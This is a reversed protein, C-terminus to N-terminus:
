VVSKRDAYNGHWAVVDFVSHDMDAVFLKGQYKHILQFPKDLDEYAAVPYLFDRPNALGNAGIPGLDPIIFHGHFIEAIYGRSTEKTTLKVAFRIGRPILLIEKPKVYLHGFETQVNLDGQQPVILLDGDASTFARDVMDKNCLYMHVAFGTKMQPSGAGAMCHLGDVFDWETNAPISAPMWRFQKPTANQSFDADLCQNRTNSSSYERFVSHCVSPRIRYLWSRLNKVRPATFSTGSLQEAYLGYPCVQPSNQGKPLADELAETSFHSLYGSQYQYKGDTIVKSM